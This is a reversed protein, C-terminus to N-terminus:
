KEDVKELLIWPINKETIGFDLSIDYNGNNEYVCNEGFFCDAPIGMEIRPYPHIKCRSYCHIVIGVEKSARHRVKDGVAFVIPEKNTM